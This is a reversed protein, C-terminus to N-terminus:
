PRALISKELELAARYHTIALHAARIEAEVKNRETVDLQNRMMKENLDLLRQELTQIHEKLPRDM